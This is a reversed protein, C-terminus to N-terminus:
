VGTAAGTSEDGDADNQKPKSAAAPGRYLKTNLSNRASTFLTSPSDERLAQRLIHFRVDLDDAHHVLLAEPTMPPRPSATDSQKHHSVILHELRLVVEPDLPRGAAAAERVGELLLDRGFFLHGVLEGAPTASAGGDPDVVTERVKGLDHLIAGAALLDRDLLASAESDAAYCEALSLAIRAVSLLHELLGGPYAHHHRGGPLPLLQERHRDLLDSLLRRLEPRRVRAAVLASLEDWTGSAGQPPAPRLSDADFGQASDAPTTERIKRLDISPGYTASEKVVGRIKFTQGPKWRSRCEEFYPSDRWVPAVIERRADRFAARVFPKGDRTLADEKRALLAFFDVEEGPPAESLPVLRPSKSAM